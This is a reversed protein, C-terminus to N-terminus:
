IYIYSWRLKFFWLLVYLSSEWHTKPNCYDTILSIATHWFRTGRTFMLIAPLHINMGRFITYIPLSGYWYTELAAMHRIDYPLHRWHGMRFALNRRKPRTTLSNWSLPDMPNKVPGEMTPPKRPTEGHFFPAIQIPFVMTKEMSLNSLNESFQHPFHVDLCGFRLLQWYPDQTIDGILVATCGTLCSLWCIHRRLKGRKGERPSMPFFVVPCCPMVWISHTDEWFFSSWTQGVTFVQFFVSYVEVPWPPLQQSTIAKDDLDM